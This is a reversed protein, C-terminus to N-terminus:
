RRYIERVIHHYRPPDPVGKSKKLPRPLEPKEFPLKKYPIVSLPHAICNLRAWKKDDAKVIYWPAYETDTSTILKGITGTYELWRKQSELDM